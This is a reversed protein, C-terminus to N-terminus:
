SVLILCSNRPLNIFVNLHWKRKMGDEIWFCCLIACALIDHQTSKYQCQTKQYRWFVFIGSSQQQWPLQMKFLHLKWNSLASLSNVDPRLSVSAMTYPPTLMVCISLKVGGLMWKVAPILNFFGIFYTILITIIRYDLMM